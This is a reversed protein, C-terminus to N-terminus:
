FVCAIYVGNTYTPIYAKLYHRYMTFWLRFTKSRKAAAARETGYASCSIGITVLWERDVDSVTYLLWVNARARVYVRVCAHIHTLSRPSGLCLRLAWCVYWTHVACMHECYLANVCGCLLNHTQSHTRADTYSLWWVVREYKRDRLFRCCCWCVCVCMYATRYRAFFLFVVFYLVFFIVLFM